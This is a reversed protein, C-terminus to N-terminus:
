PNEGVERPCPVEHLVPVPDFCRDGIRILSNQAAVPVAGILVSGVVAAALKKGISM